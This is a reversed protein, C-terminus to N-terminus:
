SETGAPPSEVKASPVLVPDVIPILTAHNAKTSPFGHNVSNMGVSQSYILMGNCFAVLALVVIKKRPKFEDSPLAILGVFAIVEAFLLGLKAPSWGLIERAVLNSFLYVAVASGGLTLLSAPKYLEQPFKM